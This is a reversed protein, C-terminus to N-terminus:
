LSHATVSRLRPPRSQRAPPLRRDFPSRHRLMAAQFQGRPLVALGTVAAGLPEQAADDLREVPGQADYSTATVLAYRGYLSRRMADLLRPEDDVMLIQQQM